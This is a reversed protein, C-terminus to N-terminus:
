LTTKQKTKWNTVTGQNSIVARQFLTWNSKCRRIYSSDSSVLPTILMGLDSFSLCCLTWLFLAFPYVVCHGFFFPLLVSLVIAL